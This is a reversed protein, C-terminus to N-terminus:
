EFEIYKILTYKVQFNFEYKFSKTSSLFEYKPAHM